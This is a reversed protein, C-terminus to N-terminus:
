GHSVHHEGHMDTVVLHARATNSPEFHRVFDIHVHKLCHLPGLLKKEMNSRTHLILDM